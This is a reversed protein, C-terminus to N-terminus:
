KREAISLASSSLLRPSKKEGTQEINQRLRKLKAGLTNLTEHGGLLRSTEFGTPGTMPHHGHHIWVKNTKPAQLLVVVGPVTRLARRHVRLRDPFPLHLQQCGTM